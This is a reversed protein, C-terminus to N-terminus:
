LVTMNEHLFFSHSKFVSSDCCKSNKLTFLVSYTTFHDKLHRVEYKWFQHDNWFEISHCQCSYVRKSQNFPLSSPIRVLEGHHAAHESDLKGDGDVCFVCKSQPNWDLQAADLDNPTAGDAGGGGAEPSTAKAEEEEEAEKVAPKRVSFDM